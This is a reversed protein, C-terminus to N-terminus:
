GERDVGFPKEFIVSIKRAACAKQDGLTGTMKSLAWVLTPKAVDDTVDQQVRSLDFQRHAGAKKAEAVLEPHEEQAVGVLKVVDGKVMNPLQTWVHSHLLGIVAIMVAACCQTPVALLVLLFNKM